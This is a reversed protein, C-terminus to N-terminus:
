DDIRALIPDWLRKFLGGQRFITPTGLSFCFCPCSCFLCSARIRSGATLDTKLVCCGRLTSQSVWRVWRRGLRGTNATSVDAVGHEPAGNWESKVDGLCSNTVSTKEKGQWRVRWSNWDSWSPWTWWQCRQSGTLLVFFSFFVLWLKPLALFGQRDQCGWLEGTEM